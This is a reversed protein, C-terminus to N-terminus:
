KKGREVLAAFKKPRPPEHGLETARMRARPASKPFEFEVSGDDYVVRLIHPSPIPFYEVSKAKRM